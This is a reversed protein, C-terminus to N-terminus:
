EEEDHADSRMSQRRIGCNLRTRPLEQRHKGQAAREAAKGRRLLEAILADTLVLRAEAMDAIPLAVDAEEAPMNECRLRAAEGDTGLLVGRYRKRGDSRCKWRSRPSTAPM